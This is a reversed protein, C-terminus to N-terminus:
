IKSWSNSLLKAPHDQHPTVRASSILNVPTATMQLSSQAAHDLYSLWLDPVQYQSNVSFAVQATSYLVKRHGKWTTQSGSVTHHGWPLQVKLKTTGPDLHFHELSCSLLWMAKTIWDQFNYPVVEEMSYEYFCGYARGLNLCFPVPGEKRHPHCCWM